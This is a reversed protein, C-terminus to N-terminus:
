STPTAQGMMADMEESPIVLVATGTAVEDGDNRVEGAISGPLFAVDGPALTAEEGSAIVDSTGFEAGSRTASWEQELVVTVEGSEVTFLAGTPDSADFPSVAGPELTIKVLILSAESPLQVKDAFGLPEFTVGAQEMSAEPTADQALAPSQVGPLAAGLAVLGILSLSVLTRRM